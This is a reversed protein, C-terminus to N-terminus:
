CPLFQNKGENIIIKKNEQASQVCFFIANKWNATKKLYNFSNEGMDLKNMRFM